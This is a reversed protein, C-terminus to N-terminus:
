EKNIEPQKLLRVGEININDGYSPVAKLEKGDVRLNNIELGDLDKVVLQPIKTRATISGGEININKVDDFVYAPRYDDERVSLRINRINLGDVHRIYFGWSPLEGFMSFEPYQSEQEPVSDLNWLPLYAYGKDSRGPYSIEVNEITVNEIYHDPLGSISAPFPNHFFPLEPGRIHYNIDPAGFPIDVNLNSIHVNRLRGIQGDSNRHGLKIFIANGTNTATVNTAIVNELTGGDVAEFALASRFTNFITINEITVNKFGGASATGFKIGSASSRITNNAIYVQDCYSEPNSSKLCIGDDAANVYCNTIRVNKCDGIDIGDNNWYVDSDIHVQDIKLQHCDEFNLVWSASNMATIGTIIVNTCSNIQLLKPRWSPRKRRYNYHPDPWEGTHHLSDIALALEQGQGDIKGEGTVKINEQNGAIILGPGALGSAYHKRRTSGLLVANRELHLDVHSKLVLTGTLFVGEPIIVTGGSDRHALDIASQIFETNLTVGDRIAGHDTIVYEKAMGALSVALLLLSLSITPNKNM